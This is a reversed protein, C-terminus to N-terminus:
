CYKAHNLIFPLPFVERIIELKKVHSLELFEEYSFAMGPDVYESWLDWSKAIQENTPSM